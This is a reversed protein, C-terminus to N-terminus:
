SADGHSEPYLGTAISYHNPFTISPFAPVMYDSSVGNRIMWGLMPTKGRELYNRQFGDLSIILVARQKRTFFRIVAGIM